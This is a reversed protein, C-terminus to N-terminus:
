RSWRSKRRGLDDENEADDDVGVLREPVEPAPALYPQSPPLAQPPAPGGQMPVGFWVVAPQEPDRGFEGDGRRRLAGAVSEVAVAAGLAVVLAVALLLVRARTRSTLDISTLEDQNVVDATVFVDPDVAFQEQRIQAEREAFDVLADLTSLASAASTSQATIRVIPERRDIVFTYDADFGEARLQAALDESTASLETAVALSRLDSYPNAQLAFSTEQDLTSVSPRLYQITATAEHVPAVSGAVSLAVIVGVMLTPVLVYWRRFAVVVAEWLDM